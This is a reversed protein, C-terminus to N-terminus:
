CAAGDLPNWKRRSASEQWMEEFPARCNRRRKEPQQKGKKEKAAAGAACGLSLYDHREVGGTSREFDSLCRAGSRHDAIPGAVGNPVGDDPHRVIGRNGPYVRVSLDGSRFGPNGADRSPDSRTEGRHPHADIRGSALRGDRVVINSRRDCSGINRRRDCSGINGRWNM